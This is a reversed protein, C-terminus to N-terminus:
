NYSVAVVFGLFPRGLDTHQQAGDLQRCSFLKGKEEEPNGKTPRAKQESKAASVELHPLQSSHWQSVFSGRSETPNSRLHKEVLRSLSIIISYSASFPQEEWYLMTCYTLMDCCLGNFWWRWLHNFVHSWVSCLHFHVHMELGNANCNYCGWEPKSWWQFSPLLCLQWGPAGLNSARSEKAPQQQRKDPTELNM